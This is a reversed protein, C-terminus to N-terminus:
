KEEFEINLDVIEECSDVRLPMNLIENIDIFNDQRM